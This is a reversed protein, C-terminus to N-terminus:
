RNRIADPVSTGWEDTSRQDTILWSLSEYTDDCLIVEEEASYEVINGVGDRFYLSLSGAVGHRVPGWVVEVEPDETLKEYAAFVARDNNLAFHMHHMGDVGSGNTGFCHYRHGCRYFALFTRGEPTVIRGSERLDMVTSAFRNLGDVDAAALIVHDFSVPGPAAQPAPVALVMPIDSHIGPTLEFVVGTPSTFRLAEGHRWLPSQEVRECDAGVAKLHEEAADLAAPDRVVYSVHDIGRDGPVYVLSYPDPGHAALYHRAEADVHVLSFGMHRVAFDAAAAPDPACVAIYNGREMGLRNKPGIERPLPTVLTRRWPLETVADPHTTTEEQVAM